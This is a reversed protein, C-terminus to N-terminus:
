ISYGELFPSLIQNPPPVAHPITASLGSRLSSKFRYGSGFPCAWFLSLPVPIQSKYAKYPLPPSPNSTTLHHKKSVVGILKM